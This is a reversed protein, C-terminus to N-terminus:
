KAVAKEEGPHVPINVGRDWLIMVLSWFALTLGYPLLPDYVLGALVLAVGALSTALILVRYADFHRQGWQYIRDSLLAFVIALSFLWFIILVWPHKYLWDRARKPAWDSWLWILLMGVVMDALGISFVWHWITAFTQLM